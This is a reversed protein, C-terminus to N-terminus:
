PLSARKRQCSLRDKRPQRLILQLQLHRQQKRTDDISSHKKYVFSGQFIRFAYTFIRNNKDKFCSDISIRVRFIVFAPLRTHINHLYRDDGKSSRLLGQRVLVNGHLLALTRTAASARNGQRSLTCSVLRAM